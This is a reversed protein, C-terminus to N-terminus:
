FCFWLSLSLFFLTHLAFVTFGQGKPMLILEVALDWRGTLMAIGVAHTSVNRTGFRQMGYYNIFGHDRLSALSAHIVNEIDSSTCTKPTTSDNLQVDRLTICFHNGCLDGLKVRDKVYRKTKEL